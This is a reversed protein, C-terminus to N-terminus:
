AKIKHTALKVCIVKCCHVFANRAMRCLTIKEFWLNLSFVINPLMRQKGRRLRRGLV